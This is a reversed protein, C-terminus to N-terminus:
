FNESGTNTLASLYIRLAQMKSRHYNEDRYDWNTGGRYHLFTKDAFFELNTAARLFETQAKDFGQERMWDDSLLCELGSDDCFLGRLSDTSFYGISQRSVGPNNKLYHYSYGGADVGVGDIRGCNFNITRRNPLTRMDLFVMGIWLYEIHARSQSLGALDFGKLYERASFPKVLFLDSDLLMVIDEHDYGLTNLSYQVANSNRVAPANRDEGVFRDLYPQNHIEQPISIHRIGLRACTDRIESIHPEERADSFVVFEYADLFFKQLMRHQMEIFEAKNYAYTMILVREDAEAVYSFLMALLVCTFPYKPM